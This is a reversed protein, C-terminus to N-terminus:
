AIKPYLHAIPGPDFIMLDCSLNAGTKWFGRIISESLKESKPGLKLHWLWLIPLIWQIEM